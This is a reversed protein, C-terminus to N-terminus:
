GPRSLETVIAVSSDGAEPTLLGGLGRSVRPPSADEWVPSGDNGADGPRRVRGGLM